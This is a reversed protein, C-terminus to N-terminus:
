LGYYGKYWRAFQRLGEELPTSPKFDFDRELDSVDAYTQYVDGPQMPLLEHETPKDIVGEEMLVRELTEVFYGLPEPHSNGINYIKYRVGDKTENPIRGMVDAVGMVIDDIYTFDRYMDGRNYIQIPEGRVM